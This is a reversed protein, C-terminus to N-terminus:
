VVGEQEKALAHMLATHENKDQHTLHELSSNQILLARVIEPNGKQPAIM